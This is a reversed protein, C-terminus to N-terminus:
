EPWNKKASAVFGTRSSSSCQGECRNGPRPNDAVELYEACSFVYWVCREKASRRAGQNESEKCLRAEDLEAVISEAGLDNGSEVPWNGGGGIGQQVVTGQQKCRLRCGLPAFRRMWSEFLSGYVGRKCDIQSLIVGM